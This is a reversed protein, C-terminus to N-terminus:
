MGRLTRCYLTAALSIAYRDGCAEVIHLAALHILCSTMSDLDRELRLALDEAHLPGDVLALMVELESGTIKTRGDWFTYTM